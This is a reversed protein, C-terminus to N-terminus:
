NLTYVPREVSEILQEVPITHLYAAFLNYIAERTEATV